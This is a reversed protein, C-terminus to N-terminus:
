GKTNSYGAPGGGTGPGFFGLRSFVEVKGVDNERTHRQRLRDICKDKHQDTQTSRHVVRFDKMGICACQQRNTDSAPQCFQEFKGLTSGATSMTGEVVIGAAKGAGVFFIQEGVSEGLAEVGEPTFWKDSNDGLHQLKHVMLASLDPGDIYEQLLEAYEFSDKCGLGQYVPEILQALSIQDSNLSETKIAANVEKIYKLEVRAPFFEYQKCFQHSQKKSRSMGPLSYNAPIYSFFILSIFFLIFFINRKM